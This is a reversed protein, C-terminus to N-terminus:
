FSLPISIENYNRRWVKKQKAFMLMQVVNKNSLVNKM